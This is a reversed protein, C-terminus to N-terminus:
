LGISNRAVHDSIVLAHTDFKTEDLNRRSGFSRIRCGKGYFSDVSTSDLMHSQGDSPGLRCLSPGLNDGVSTFWSRLYM